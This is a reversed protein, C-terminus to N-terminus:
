RDRYQRLMEKRLRDQPKKRIRKLDMLKVRVSQQDYRCLKLWARAECELRWAESNTDVPQPIEPADSV